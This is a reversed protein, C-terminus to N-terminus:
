MMGRNKFFEIAGEHMPVPIGTIGRLGNELRIHNLAQSHTAHITRLGEESLFSEMLDYVVNNPVDVHTLMINMIGVTETQVGTNYVDTPIMFEIYFPYDNILRQRAAGDVPVFYIEHDIGLELITANGLGSTVFAADVLGNKMQDISEGYSLFDVTVDDYTMNHTAFIMRANLEVGSGPPGVGVRRGKMDEFTKIGSGATTVIQVVNPWLGMMSRLETAPPQGDFAYTAEVAQVVSDVMSIAIEGNKNRLANINAVSAGTATVSAAYGVDNAVQYFGGGIPFYIGSTPGTLVTLFYDARNFTPAAGAPAVIAVCAALILSLIMMTAAAQMIRKKM